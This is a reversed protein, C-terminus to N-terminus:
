RGARLLRLQRQLLLRTSTMTATWNTSPMGPAPPTTGWNFDIYPSYMSVSPVSWNPDSYYQVFWSNGSQAFLPVTVAALLILVLLAPIILKKSKM